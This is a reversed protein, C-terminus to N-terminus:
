EDIEGEDKGSDDGREEIFNMLEKDIEAYQEYLWLEVGKLTNKRILLELETM